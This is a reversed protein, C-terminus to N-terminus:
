EGRRRLSPKKLKTQAKLLQFLIIARGSSKEIVGFGNGIFKRSSASRERRGLEIKINELAKMGVELIEDRGERSSWIRNGERFEM